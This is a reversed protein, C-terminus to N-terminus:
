HEIHEPWFTRKGSKWVWADLNNMWRGEGPNRCRLPYLLWYFQLNAKKAWGCLLWALQQGSEDEGFMYIYIYLIYIPIYIFLSPSPFRLTLSNAFASQNIVCYNNACASQAISPRFTNLNRNQKRGFAFLTNFFQSEASWQGFLILPQDNNPGNSPIIITNKARKSNSKASLKQRAGKLEM